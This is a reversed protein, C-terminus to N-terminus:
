PTNLHHTRFHEHLWDLREDIALAEIHYATEDSEDLSLVPVIHLLEGPNLAGETQLYYALPEMALFEVPDSIAGDIFGNFDLEMEMVDGMEGSLMWVEDDRLFYQDGLCDQAFPIDSDLLNPYVKSLSREGTWYRQLSHWSDEQTCSRIQLGGNYAILGNFEADFEQLYDPLREALDTDLPGEGRYIVGKFEM